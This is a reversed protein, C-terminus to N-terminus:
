LRRPSSRSIILYTCFICWNGVILSILMFPFLIDVEDVALAGEEVWQIPDRGEAGELDGM